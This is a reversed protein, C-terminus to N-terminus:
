SKVSERQEAKRTGLKTVTAIGDKVDAILVEDGDEFTEGRGVCLMEVTSSLGNIRARGTGSGEFAVIVTAERGIVDASKLTGGGEQNEAMLRKFVARAMAAATIGVSASALAILWPHAQAFFHSVVGTLGFFAFFYTVARLSFWGDHDHGDDHSAVLSSILLAAGLAASAIYVTLPM